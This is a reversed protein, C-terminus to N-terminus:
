CDFLGVNLFLESRVEQIAISLKLPRRGDRFRVKNIEVFLVTATAPLIIGM